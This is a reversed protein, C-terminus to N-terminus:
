PTRVGHWYRRSGELVSELALGDPRSRAIVAGHLDTQFFEAGSSLWADRVVDAPHGYRNWSGLQAIVHTARVREIFAPTSSTKSGHHAAIVLDVAELGRSVLAAEAAAEIDGTLLASHHAGRVRLVCSDENRATTRARGVPTGPVPALPWLFEFSVGDVQWTTGYQCPVEARPLVSPGTGLKRAEAKLWASLSFSSYSQEVPMGELVSRLGGAHDLDAHSVVLVDLKRVGSARLFPLISRQGEDSQLSRRVGTDFLLTHGATQLVLASGQGVDLATLDWEGPVPRVPQWLFAPLMLTWGLWRRGLKLSQPWLAWVVGALALANLALPAVPVSFQSLPHTGLWVTPVMMWYLIQHTLWALWVAPWDLGPVMSLAATILAMPTVLVGIVPIAYANALPSALSVEHFIWALIPMLALTIALQLRAAERLGVWARRLLSPRDSARGSTQAEGPPEAALRAGCAILVAVACFSLWFGSALMAWPDLVVVIMAALALVRSGSIPLRVIYCGAVVLLMMFTRRAPVGWGALLCYLWAVILAACAGAIQAPIREALAKGRWRLRRWLWFAAIGGFAAIMTIHSGSISVLHTIGTRNFILWDEADVGAQDGIVLARLVPGYRKGELHPQMAARVIHRAREALVSLGAYPEDRLLVPQGRVTGTARLGQAFLHREYDFAHPNMAARVPRTVLAMRWVQGPILDPFPTDPPEPRGYPGRWRGAGWNVRIRKPMGDPRASLVEAEFQRRDADGQVLGAIRLEARVVRDVNGPALQDALRGHAQWATFAFGALAAAALCGAFRLWSYRVLAGVCACAVASMLPVMLGPLEAFTHVAVAGGLYALSAARGVM